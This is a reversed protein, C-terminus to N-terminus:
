HRQYMQDMTYFARFTCPLELAVKIQLPNCVNFYVPRKVNNGPKFTISFIGTPHSSMQSVALCLRIWPPTAPVRGWSERNKQKLM